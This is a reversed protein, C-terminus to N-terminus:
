HATSVTISTKIPNSHVHTYIQASCNYLNFIDSNLIVSVYFMFIFVTLNVIFHTVIVDFYNNTCAKYSLYSKFM